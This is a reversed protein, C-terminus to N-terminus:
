AVLDGPPTHLDALAQDWAINGNAPQIWGDSNTGYYVGFAPWPDSKMIEVWGLVSGVYGAGAAGAAPLPIYVLAPNVTRAAEALARGARYKKGYWRKWDGFVMRDLGDWQGLTQPDLADFARNTSPPGVPCIHLRVGPAEDRFAERFANATDRLHWVPAGVKTSGVYQWGKAILDPPIARAEAISKISNSGTTKFIGPLASIWVSECNCSYQVCGHRKAANAAARGEKAAQAVTQMYHFGWAFRACGAADARAYADKLVVGITTSGSARDDWPNNTGPGSSGDMIKISIAGYQGWQETGWEAITRRAASPTLWAVAQPGYESKPILAAYYGALAMGARKTLAWFLGGAALLAVLWRGGV